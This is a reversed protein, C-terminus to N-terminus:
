RGGFQTSEAGTVIMSAAELRGKEPPFAQVLGMTLDRLMRAVMGSNTTHGTGCAKLANTAV